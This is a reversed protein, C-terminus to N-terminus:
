EDMNEVAEDEGDGNGSTTWLTLNDRLLQMILTADKYQAEDLKDLKQIAEDFADKALRCAEKRNDLIEYYCVSLNLALGLRIHHTPQLADKALDTGKLYFEKAKQDYGNEKDLEALYRYYDGAMKLYFICSETKQSDGSDKESLKTALPILQKELIELVELCTKITETSILSLYGSSLESAKSDMHMKVSRHSGRGAGVLNKYGVSLLNREENDLDEEKAVKLDVVMRMLSCMNTYREAHEAMKALAVGSKIADESSKMKSIISDM